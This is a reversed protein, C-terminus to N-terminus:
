ITLPSTLSSTVNIATANAATTIEFRPKSAPNVAEITVEKSVTIGSASTYTGSEVKIVDGNSAVSIAQSLTLYPSGQTGNGTSDNGTTAIYLNVM